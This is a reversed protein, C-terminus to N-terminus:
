KLVNFTTNATVAKYWADGAFAATATHAGAPEVAPIAWTTSAWGDAAVTGSGIESGNVKFAIAKGPQIVYDPLSRVYAKLPHSTGAKGTRVYPWIYIDGQSVTLTGTNASAKYGGDGAFEGRITRTGAGAGETVTHGLQAYGAPRTTDSGLVTGDLRIVMVKDAVPSNNLLYLYTKLVTYTKVKATRNVVYTKTDVQLASLVANGESAAYDQDGAFAASVGHAGYPAPVTCPVVAQGGSGTQGGGVPSGDVKFTVWAGTVWAKDPKRFLYAKLAVSSGVIGSRDAVSLGSQYARIHVDAFATDAYTAMIRVVKGTQRAATPVAFPASSREGGPIQVTPPLTVASSDDTSLAVEAYPWPAPDTLSVTVTTPEGGVVAVPSVAVSSARTPVDTQWFGAWLLGLGQPQTLLDGPRDNTNGDLTCVAPEGLTGYSPGSDEDAGASTFAAYRLRNAMAAGAVTVGDSQGSASWNGVADVTRVRIYYTHGPQLALSHIQFFCDPASALVTPSWPLDADTAAPVDTITYRYGAIGSGADSSRWQGSIASTNDTAEGEDLVVPVTPPAADIRYEVSKPTEANGPDPNSSDFSWYTVNHTGDSSITFPTNYAQEPGGDITYRTERVGSPPGNTDPDMRNLTVTVPSVWSGSAPPSATTVPPTRDLVYGVPVSTSTHGADDTAVVTVSHDGEAATLTSWIVSTGTGIEQGDVRVSLTRVQSGSGPSASATITVSAANCPSPISFEPPNVVPSETDQRYTRDIQYGNGAGDTARIHFTHEGERMSTSGTAPVSTHAAEDDWWIETSGFGSDGGSISWSVTQSTSYWGAIEDPQLSIGPRVTDLRYTGLNVIATNGDQTGGNYANDEIQVELAHAGEVLAASGSAGNQWAQWDTAGVWRYRSRRAGSHRDTSSWLVQEATSYWVDPAAGGSRSASPAENDFGGWWDGSRASGFANAVTAWCQTNACGLRDLNVFGERSNYPGGVLTGNIYERVEVTDSGKTVRWPIPENNRYWVNQAPQNYLEIAPAEGRPHTNLYPIPDVFGYTNSTSTTYGRWPNTPEPDYGPRIGFHLHPPSYTNLHGLVEGASVAGAGHWDALHGYLAVFWSGDGAKFRAILAGGSTGNPGYGSHLGSSIVEGDGLAYVKTGADNKMDQALHYGWGSNYGLWGLYGGFDSKGTPWYWNSSM